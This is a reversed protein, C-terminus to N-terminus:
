IDSGAFLQRSLSKYSGAVFFPALWSDDEQLGLPKNAVQSQVTKGRFLYHEFMRMFETVYIDAVHTNGRIIISNEDNNHTSNTSFNASGTVIIPDNSLPDCAIIKCHIHIGAHHFSEKGELIRNQYNHLPSDLTTAVSVANGLNGEIVSVEQANGLSATKDILLFHLVGPPVSQFTNLLPQALEFPASVM